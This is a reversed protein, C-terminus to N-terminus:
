SHSTDLTRCASHCLAAICVDPMCECRVQALEGLMDMAAMEADLYTEIAAQRRAEISELAQQHLIDDYM